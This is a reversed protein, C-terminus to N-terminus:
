IVIRGKSTAGGKSLPRLAVLNKYCLIKRKELVRDACPQILTYPYRHAGKKQQHATLPGGESIISVTPIWKKLIIVGAECIEVSSIHYGKLFM